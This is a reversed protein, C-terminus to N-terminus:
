LQSHFLFTFVKKRRGLLERLFHVVDLGTPGQPGGKVQQLRQADGVSAM